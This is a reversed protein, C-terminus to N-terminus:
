EAHRTYYRNNKQTVELPYDFLQSVNESNVLDAKEGYKFLKGRKLFLMHTICSPLEELHHTVYIIPTKIALQNIESLLQERTPIDLGQCPEDFILLKPKTVLARALLTKRRQGDSLTSFKQSSRENLGYTALLIQAAKLQEETPQEPLGYTGQFGSVVVDILSAKKEYWKAITSSVYGIQKRLDWLSCQGFTQGLITTTGSSPILDASLVRLLFSKGAGNPGIISLHQDSRIELNIDALITNGQRKISLKKLSAILLSKM